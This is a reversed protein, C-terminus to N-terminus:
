PKSLGKSTIARHTGLLHLSLLLVQRFRRLRNLPPDTLAYVVNGALLVVGRPRWRRAFIGVWDLVVRWLLVLLYLSLVSQLIVVIYTIVSM